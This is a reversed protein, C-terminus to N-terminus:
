ENEGEEELIEKIGAFKGNKSRGIWKRNWTIDNIVKTNLERGEPTVPFTESEILNDIDEDENDSGNIYSRIDEARKQGYKQQEEDSLHTMPNTNNSNERVQERIRQAGMEGYSNVEDYSLHNLASSADALRQRQQGKVYNAGTFGAVSLTQMGNTVVNGFNFRNM